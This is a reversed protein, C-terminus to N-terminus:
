KRTEQCGDLGGKAKKLSLAKECMRTGETGTGCYGADINHWGEGRRYFTGWGEIDVSEPTEAAVQATIPAQIGAIEQETQSLPREPFEPLNTLWDTYVDSM